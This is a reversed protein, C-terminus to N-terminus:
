ILPSTYSLRILYCVEWVGYGVIYVAILLLTKNSLMGRLRVIDADGDVAHLLTKNSLMGRLSVM